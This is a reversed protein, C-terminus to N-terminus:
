KRLSAILQNNQLARYGFNNYIYERAAKTTLREDIFYVPLNFHKYLAAAFTRAKQTIVTFENEDMQLPIGVILAAPNWVQIVGKNNAM